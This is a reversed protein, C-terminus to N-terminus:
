ELARVPSMSNGDAGAVIWSFPPVGAISRGGRRGGLRYTGLGTMWARLAMGPHVTYGLIMRSLHGSGRGQAQMPPRAPLVADEEADDAIVIVDDEIGEAEADSAAAEAAAAKRKGRSGGAARM